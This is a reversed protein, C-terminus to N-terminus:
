RLYNLDVPTRGQYNRRKSQLSVWGCNTRNGECSKIPKCVLGTGWAEKKTYPGIPCKMAVGLLISRPDIGHKTLLLGKKGPAAIDHVLRM